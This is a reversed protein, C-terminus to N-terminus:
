KKHELNDEEANVGYKIEMEEMFLKDNIDDIFNQNEESLGGFREMIESWEECTFLEECPNDLLGVHVMKMDDDTFTDDYKVLIERWVEKTLPGIDPDYFAEFLEKENVLVPNEM